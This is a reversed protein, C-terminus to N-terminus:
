VEFSARLCGHSKAHIARRAVGGRGEYNKRFHREFIAVYRALIAEEGPILYEGAARDIDSRVDIGAPVRNENEPRPPVSSQRADLSSPISGGDPGSRNNADGLRDTADSVEVRRSSPILRGRPRRDYGTSPGIPLTVPPGSPASHADNARIRLSDASKNPAAVP